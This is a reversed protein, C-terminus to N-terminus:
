DLSWMFLRESNQINTIKCMNKNKKCRKIWLSIIFRNKNILVKWRISYKNFRWEKYIMKGKFIGMHLPFRWSWFHWCNITALDVVTLSFEIIPVYITLSRCVELLLFNFYVVLVLSVLLERKLYIEPKLPLFYCSVRLYNFRWIRNCM